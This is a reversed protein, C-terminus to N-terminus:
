PRLNLTSPQPNFTAKPSAFVSKPSFPLSSTKGFRPRPPVGSVSQLCSRESTRIWSCWTQLKWRLPQAQQARQLAQTLCMHLSPPHLPLVPLLPLSLSPFTSGAVDM